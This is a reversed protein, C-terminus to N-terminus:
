PCHAIAPYLQLFLCEADELEPAGTERPTQALTPTLPIDVQTLRAQDIPISM